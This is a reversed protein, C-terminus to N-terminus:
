VSTLALAQSNNGASHLPLQPPPYLLWLLQRYQPERAASPDAVTPLVIRDSDGPVGQSNATPIASSALQATKEATPDTGGTNELFPTQASIGGSIEAAFIPGKSQRALAAGGMWGFYLLAPLQGLCRGRSHLHLHRLRLDVM